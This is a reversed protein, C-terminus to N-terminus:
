RKSLIEATKLHHLPSVLLRGGAVGIAVVVLWTAFQM